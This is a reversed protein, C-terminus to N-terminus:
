AKVKSSRKRKGALAQTDTHDLPEDIDGSPQQQLQQPKGEEPQQDDISSNSFTESEENPGADTEDMEYYSSVQVDDIIAMEAHRLAAKVASCHRSLKYSVFYM